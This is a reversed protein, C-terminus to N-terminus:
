RRDDWFETANGDFGTTGAIARTKSGAPKMAPIFLTRAESAGVQDRHGIAAVNAECRSRLSVLVIYFLACDRSQGEEDKVISFKNSFIKMLLKLIYNNKYTNVNFSM